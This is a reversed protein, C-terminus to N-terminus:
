YDDPATQPENDELFYKLGLPASIPDFQRPSGQLDFFDTLDNAARQDAFTLIGEAVGYNQEIFRLISGFDYPNNSVYTPTYASVVLLPVRFGYQYDGEPQTLITPPEHDYFGGWDDWTVFIATENGSQNAGWYDCVGGGQSYQWSQGIANVIQAVWSPGGNNNYGPHDSNVGTPTVWTVDRLHCNRIDTLVDKARVDVDNVWEWGQCKGHEAGCISEIANPATWVNNPGAAYYRWTIGLPLIDPITNHDFCPFITERKKEVGPPRILQVTTGAPAACGSAHKANESAFVGQSDSDADPASTGGFIFQHAPFSPGQNTQFMYNAWGYQQAMTLYPQVDTPDVYEFSCKNKKPDTGCNASSLGDMGCQNTIPNLHCQAVFASHTHSPDYAYGLPEETLPIENGRNDIGFNQLNYPTPCLTGDSGCLGQFLNDPTRNEQVIVVVHQFNSIQTRGLAPRVLARPVPSRATIKMSSGIVALQSGGTFQTALSSGNRNGVSNSLLDTGNVTVGFQPGDPARAHLAPFLSVFPVAAQAYGLVSLLGPLVVSLVTGKRMM